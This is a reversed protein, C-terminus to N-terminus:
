FLNTIKNSGILNYEEMPLIWDWISCFNYFEEESIAIDCNKSQFKEEKENSKSENKEDCTANESKEDIKTKFQHNYNNEIVLPQNQSFHPFSHSKYRVKLSSNLEGWRNKIDIGNRENLMKSITVWKPGIENHMKKIITDEEETWPHSNLGERLYNRYRDRCQRPTRGRLIQSIKGWDKNGNEKVFNKLIEDEDPSFMRRRSIDM